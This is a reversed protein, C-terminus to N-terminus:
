SGGVTPTLQHETSETSGIHVGQFRSVRNRGARKSDYLAEDAHQVLEDLAQGDNPYASVGGSITLNGGPQKEQHTFVQDEIRQRLREAVMFATDPDTQPMLVMFEEGGYRCCLDGPRMSKRLLASLGRLLADGAPHGNTDNYTKFHDIDFIFLALRESRQATALLVDAVKHMFYSKNLLQTLGDHNAQDRLRNVNVANVLALTGLNTVMQLMLKEDRPRTGPNGIAIVGLVEETHGTNHLLPAILDLKLMPHNSQVSLGDTRTMTAWEDSVKDLRHEAVWGIKGQGFPINAVAKPVEPLGKQDLLVLEKGESTRRMQYFLIQEPQFIGEALSMVLKPIQRMELDARALQSVVHPLCLALSAVTNQERRMHSLLRAQERAQKEMRTAKDNAARLEVHSQKRGRKSIASGIVAGILLLIPTMLLLYLPSMDNM